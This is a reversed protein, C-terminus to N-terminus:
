CARGEHRDGEMDKGCWMGFHLDSQAFVRAVCMEECRELIFGLIRVHATCAQPVRVRGRDRHRGRWGRRWGGGGLDRAMRTNEPGVFVGRGSPQLLSKPAYLIKIKFAGLEHEILYRLICGGAMNFKKKQRLLIKLPKQIETNSTIQRHAGGNLAGTTECDEEVHELTEHLRPMAAQM